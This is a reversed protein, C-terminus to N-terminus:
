PTTPSSTKAFPPAVSAKHLKLASHLQFTGKTTRKPPQIQPDYVADVIGLVICGRQLGRRSVRTVRM